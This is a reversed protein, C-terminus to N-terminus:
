KSQISDIVQALVRLTGFILHKPPRYVIDGSEIKTGSIACVKAVRAYGRRLITTMM